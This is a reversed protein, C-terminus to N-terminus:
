ELAPFLAPLTATSSKGIWLIIKPWVQSAWYIQIAITFIALGDTDMNPGEIKFVFNSKRKESNKLAAWLIEHNMYTQDENEGNQSSGSFQGPFTSAGMVRPSGPSRVEVDVM